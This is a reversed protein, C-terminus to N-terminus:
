DVVPFSHFGYHGQSPVSVTLYILWDSLMDQFTSPKSVLLNLLRMESHDTSCIFESMVGFPSNDYQIVLSFFPYYIPNDLHVIIM